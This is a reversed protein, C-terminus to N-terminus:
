KKKTEVAQCIGDLNRRFGEFQNSWRRDRYITNKYDIIIRRLRAINKSKGM